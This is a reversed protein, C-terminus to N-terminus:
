LKIFEESNKNLYIIGKHTDIHSIYIKRFPIYFEKEGKIVLLINETDIGLMSIVMGIEKDNIIVKSNIIDDIFFNDEKPKIRMNEHIKIEAKCIDFAKNRSDIGLFKVLLKNDKLIIKEIKFKQISTKFDLFVEKLSLFREVEPTYPIVVVFGEDKYTNRIKGITILM